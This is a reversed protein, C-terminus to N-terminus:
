PRGKAPRRLGSGRMPHRLLWTIVRRVSGVITPVPDRVNFSSRTECRIVWTVWRHFPMGAERAALRDPVPDCWAVGPRILRSRPRPDGVLDAYVLAPLNVGAVAAPLNWLTFRPNVELLHLTGSPDRKFDLKAVGVLGLQGVIDRGSALVDPADTIEVATSHGYGQPYTRIKRGTFEGAIRHTPDVYVHYSEVQTEPGPVLEQAVVDLSREDLRRRMAQLEALSGVEVAKAGAAFADWAPDLRSQPKIILPWHLGDLGGADSADAALRRSRPVPLDLREALARFKAKDVLEDVLEHHPLIFRFATALRDRERSVVLLDVDRGCYLVPAATQARGFTLLHQVFLEPELLPDAWPLRERVYRSYRVIAGQHEVVACPIGALALPQVYDLGGVVCAM